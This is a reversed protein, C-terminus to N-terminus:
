SSLTSRREVTSNKAGRTLKFDEFDFGNKFVPSAEHRRGLYTLTFDPFEIPGNKGFRVKTGYAAPGGAGAACAATGLMALLNALATRRTFSRPAAASSSANM